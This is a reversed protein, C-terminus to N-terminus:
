AAIEGTDIDLNEVDIQGSILKPLLLDRTKQLNINKEKLAHILSLLQSAHTNFRKQLTIPPFYIPLSKIMGLSVYGQAVGGKIAFLADQFLYNRIWYYLYDSFLRNTDPRLIAVSSSIGFKDNNQFLYPEGITGIISFLVDGLRPKTLAKSNEQFYKLYDKEAIYSVKSLDLDGGKFNKCTLYLIGSEQRKIKAHAGDGVTCADGLTTIEWGEPILGLDSEVMKVQEHGPFRFKVFWEQYLTQAMEELIKIRRTNNEILDDYASLISAIKNQTPLPPYYLPLSRIMELSVYSQAVGGKIGYLADQFIQGRIWYYLYKPYIQLKDPRIISVSSSLGYKDGNQVLYPEGITGIISFLVDDPQPKTLAKSDERFYKQYSEESIYDLKSLDLRGNKFNKSTLYKVGSNQRNIKAHAGDGVICHTGIQEQKWRQKNSIIFM